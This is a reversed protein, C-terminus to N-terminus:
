DIQVTPGDVQGSQNKLRRITDDDLKKIILTDDYGFTFIVNDGREWRLGNLINSPIVVARSTGVKVIKTTYLNDM